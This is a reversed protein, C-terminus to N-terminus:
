GSAAILHGAHLEATANFATLAGYPTTLLVRARDVTIVLDPSVFRSRPGPATIRDIWAQLSPVRITGDADVTARVVADHARIAVIEPITKEPNFDIEVRPAYFGPAESTGLTLEGQAGSGDFRDIRLSSEVNEGHFYMEAALEVLSHRALWLVLILAGLVLIAIGARVPWRM